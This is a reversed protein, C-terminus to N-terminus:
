QCYESLVHKEELYLALANEFSVVHARLRKSNRSGLLDQSEVCCGAIKTECGNTECPLHLFPQTGKVQWSSLCWSGSGVVLADFERDSVQPIFENQHCVDMGLYLHSCYSLAQILDDSSM